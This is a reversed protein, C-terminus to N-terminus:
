LLGNGRNVRGTRVDWLRKVQHQTFRQLAVRRLAKSARAFACGGKLADECTTNGASIKSTIGGEMVKNVLYSVEYKVMGFNSCKQREHVSEDEVVKCRQAIRKGFRFKELM